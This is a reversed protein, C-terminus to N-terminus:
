GTVLTDCGRRRKKPSSAIQRFLNFLLQHESLPVGARICPKLVYISTRINQNTDRHKETVPIWRTQVKFCHIRIVELTTLVAPTANILLSLGTSIQERNGYKQGWTAVQGFKTWSVELQKIKSQTANANSIDSSWTWKITTLDSNHLGTDSRVSTSQLSLGAAMGM